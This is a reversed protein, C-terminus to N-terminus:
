FRRELGLEFGSESYSFAEIGSNTRQYNMLLFPSFGNGIFVDNKEVRLVAGWSEEDPNGTFLVSPTRFRKNEVFVTPRLTFGGTTNIQGFITFRQRIFNELNDDVDKSEFFVSADITGRGGFSRRVGIEADIEHGDLSASTPNHLQAGSLTAFVSGGSQNRGEFAAQLGIRNEFINGGILRTTIVPGISSTTNRTLARLGFRAGFIYDDYQSNRAETVDFSLSAFAVADAGLLKKSIPRRFNASGTARLGFETTRERNLTFPLDIGSFNLIIQDTDYNRQNGVNTVGISFDWDFGRRADIERILGLVKTRVPEPLDGSLATFFENRARNWQRALFYALGLELRVRVLNPNKALISSFKEIAADTNGLKLDRLGSQFVAEILTSETFPEAKNTGTPQADAEGGCHIAAIICATLLYNRFM